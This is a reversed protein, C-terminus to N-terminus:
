VSVCVRSLVCVTIASGGIVTSLISRRAGGATKRQKSTRHTQAKSKLTSQTHRQEEKHTHIKGAGAVGHPGPLTGADGIGQGVHLALGGV